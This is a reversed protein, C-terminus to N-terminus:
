DKVIEAAGDAILKRVADVGPNLWYHNDSDVKVLYEDYKKSDSYWQKLDYSDSIKEMNEETECRMPNIWAHFSLDSSHAEQIMIELPDFGPVVGMEGTIGKSYPYFESAIIHMVSAESMCM